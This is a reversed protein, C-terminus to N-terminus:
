EKRIDIRRKQDESKKMTIMLVGDKYSANIESEKVRAPLRFERQFAGHMREYIYPKEESRVERESEGSIRMRNDRIDIDIDDPDIGPMDAIVRIERDTESVDIRPFWRSLAARDETRMIGFPDILDDDFYRNVFRRPREGSGMGRQKPLDDPRRAQESRSHEDPREERDYEDPRRQQM